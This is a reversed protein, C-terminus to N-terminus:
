DTIPVTGGSRWYEGGGRDLMGEDVLYRRLTATDPDVPALMANVQRERYRIGPEFRQVIHDLVVLRRSRKSPLAVLRGHDFAQDLIRRRDPTEDVFDSPPPAPAERRAALEFAGALLHYRNADIPEVLGASVLRDLAEVTDRRTCGSRTAVTSADDAGLVLAAFVARRAPDALLGVLTRSSLPAPPEDTM